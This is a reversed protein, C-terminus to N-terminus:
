HDAQLAAYLAQAKRATLAVREIPKVAKRVVKNKKQMDMRVALDSPMFRGFEFNKPAFSFQEGAPLAKKLWSNKFLGDYIRVSSLCEFIFNKCQEKIPKSVPKLQNSAAIVQDSKKIFSEVSSILKEAKLNAGTMDMIRQISAQRKHLAELLSVKNGSIKKMLKLTNSALEGAAEKKQSESWSFADIADFTLLSLTLFSKFLKVLRVALLQIYFAFKESSVMLSHDCAPSIWVSKYQKQWPREIQCAYQGKFAKYFKFYSKSLKEYGDACDAIRSAIMLWQSAFQVSQSQSAFCGIIKDAALAAINDPQVHRKGWRYYRWSAHMYHFASFSKVLGLPLAVAAKSADVSLKQILDATVAM